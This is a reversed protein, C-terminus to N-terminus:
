TQNIKGELEDSILSYNEKRWEDQMNVININLKNKDLHAISINQTNSQTRYFTEVRPAQSALICKAKTFESIKEALTQVNYRPNQESKYNTLSEENDIIILNLNKIPSFIALRTGLIIKSQQNYIKQWEQWFLTQSLKNHLVSIQNSFYYNLYQYIQQIDAIQPVIILIQKQPNKDLFIKIIKIYVFFKESQNQYCLLECKIEQKNILDIADKIKTLSKKPVTLRKAIELSLTTFQKPINLIKRKPIEPFIIKAILPLSACYYNSAWQILKILHESLIIEPEFIKNIKKLKISDETSQTKIKVIIGNIKRNCFPIEVIQNIRIKNQLEEPIIYDFYDLHKPLRTIPIIVAIHQNKNIENNISKEM